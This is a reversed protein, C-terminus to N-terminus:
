WFADKERFVRDGHRRKGSRESRTSGVFLIENGRVAVAEADPRWAGDQYPADSSPTGDPAPDSWTFTYVRGNTLILDAEPTTTCGSLFILFATLLLAPYSRLANLTREPFFKFTLSGDLIQYPSFRQDIM